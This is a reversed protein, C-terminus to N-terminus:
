HLLLNNLLYSTCSEVLTWNINNQMNMANESRYIYNVDALFRKAVTLNIIEETEDSLFFQPFCKFYFDTNQQVLCPHFNIEADLFLFCFRWACHLM